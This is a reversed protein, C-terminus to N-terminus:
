SPLVDTIREKKLYEDYSISFLSEELKDINREKTPFVGAWYTDTLSIGIRQIGTRSIFISPAKIVEVGDESIVLIEGKLAFLFHEKHHLKGVIISGAEIFFDRCYADETFRHETKWEVRDLDGVSIGHELFEYVDTISRRISEKSMGKIIADYKEVVSNVGNSFLEQTFDALDINAPSSNTM